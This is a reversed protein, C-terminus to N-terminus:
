IGPLHFAYLPGVLSGYYVMGDAVAPSSAITGGDRYAWKEAGTTIDLAYLYGDFTGFYLLGDALVPDTSMRIPSM